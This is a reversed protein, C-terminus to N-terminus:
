FFEYRAIIGNRREYYILFHRHKDTHRVKVWYFDFRGIRVM